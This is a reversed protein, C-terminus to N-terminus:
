LEERADVAAAKDRHTDALTRTWHRTLRLYMDEDEEYADYHAADSAVRSALGARTLCPEIQTGEGVACEYSM